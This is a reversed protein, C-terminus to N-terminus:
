EMPSIASACSLRLSYIICKRCKTGKVQTFFWHKLEPIIKKVNYVNNDNNNNNNIKNNYKNVTYKKM